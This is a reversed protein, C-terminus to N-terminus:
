YADGQQRILILKQKLKEQCIITNSTYKKSLAEM